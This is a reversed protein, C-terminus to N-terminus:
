LIEFKLDYNDIVTFNWCHKEKGNYFYGNHGYIITDDFELGLLQEIGGRGLNIKDFFRVTAYVNKYKKDYSKNLYLVKVRDGVKIHLLRFEEESLKKLEIPNDEEEEWVEEFDFSESIEFDNAKFWYDDLKIIKDGNIEAIKKIKFEEGMLIKNPNIKIWNLNNYRFFPGEKDIYYYVNEKSPKVIDGIDLTDNEEEWIDITDQSLVFNEYIKKDYKKLINGYKDNIFKRYEPKLVKYIWDWEYDKYRDDGEDYGNDIIKKGSVLNEIDQENINEFGKIGTLLNEEIDSPDGYFYAVEDGDKNIIIDTIYHYFDNSYESVITYPHINGDNYDIPEDDIWTEEFDNFSEYLRIYKM